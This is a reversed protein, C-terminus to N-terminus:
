GTECVIRQWTRDVSDHPLLVSAAICLKKVISTSASISRCSRSRAAAASARAACALGDFQLLRQNDRADRDSAFRGASAKGLMGTPAGNSSRRTGRGTSHQSSFQGDTCTHHSVSGSISALMKNTAKAASITSATVEFRKPASLRHTSVYVALRCSSHCTALIHASVHWGHGHRDGDKKEEEAASGAFRSVARSAAARTRM